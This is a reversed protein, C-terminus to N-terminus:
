ITIYSPLKQSLAWGYLYSIGWYKFYLSKENGDYDKMYKDNVKGYWQIADCKRGKIGKETMSLTDTDILLDLKVKIKKLSSAM